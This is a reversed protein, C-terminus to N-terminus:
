IKKHKQCLGIGIETENWLNHPQQTIQKNMKLHISFILKKSHVIGKIQIGSLSNSNYIMTKFIEGVLEREGERLARLCGVHCPRTANGDFATPVRGVFATEAATQGRAAGPRTVLLDVAGWAGGQLTSSLLVSFPRRRSPAPGASGSLFPLLHHTSPYFAAVGHKLTGEGNQSIQLPFVSWSFTFHHISNVAVKELFNSGSTWNRFPHGGM